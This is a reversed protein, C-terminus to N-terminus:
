YVKAAMRLSKDGVLDVSKLGSQYVPIKNGKVFLVRFVWMSVRLSAQSKCENENADSGCM